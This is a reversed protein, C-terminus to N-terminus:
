CFYKEGESGNLNIQLFHTKLFANKVTKSCSKKLFIKHKKATKQARFVCSKKLFSFIMKKLFICSGAFSCFIKQLFTFLSLITWKKRLAFFIIKQFINQVRTKAHSFFHVFTRKTVVLVKQFITSSLLLPKFFGFIKGELTKREGGDPDSEVRRHPANMNKRPAHSIQTHTNQAHARQACGGCAVRARWPPVCRRSWAPKQPKKVTSIQRHNQVLGWLVYPM